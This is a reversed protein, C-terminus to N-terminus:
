KARYVLSRLYVNRLFSYKFCISLLRTIEYVVKHNSLHIIIVVGASHLGFMFSAVVGAIGEMDILVEMPKHHNRLEVVSQEVLGIVKVRSLTFNLNPICIM